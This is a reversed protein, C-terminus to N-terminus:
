ISTWSRILIFSFMTNMGQELQAESALELKSMLHYLYVNSSPGDQHSGYIPQTRSGIGPFSFLNIQYAFFGLCFQTKGVQVL